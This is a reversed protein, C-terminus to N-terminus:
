YHDVLRLNDRNCRIGSEIPFEKAHKHFLSLCVHTIIVRAPGIVNERHLARVQTLYKHRWGLIGLQPPSM